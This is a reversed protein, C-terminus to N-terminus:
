SIKRFTLNIRPGVEKKTKPIAHKWERQFEGKMILLSNDELDLKILEGTKKHKINFRRAAGFSLSAIRPKAGLEPEDDSHYGMSDNGDRYLNLLVSNFSHGVVSEVQKKIDLLTSTWPIPSNKLGSYTYEVGADGYWATLRPQMVEKGFIKIAEHKWTVEEMLRDFYREPRPFVNEFIEIEGELAIPVTM